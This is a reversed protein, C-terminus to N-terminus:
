ARSAILCDRRTWGESAGCIAIIDIKCKGALPDHVVAPEPQVMSSQAAECIESCRYSGKLCCNDKM